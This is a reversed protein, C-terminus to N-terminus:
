QLRKLYTILDHRNTADEIGDFSIQHEVRHESMRVNPIFQQPNALFTDLNEETWIFPHEQVHKMFAQSYRYGQAAGVPRNVIGWLFPGKQNKKEPSIDHCVGCHNETLRRGISVDGHSRWLFILSLAGLTLLLMALTAPKILNNM